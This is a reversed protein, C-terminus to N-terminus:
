LISVEWNRGEWRQDRRWFLTFEFVSDTAWDVTPYDAFWLNLGAEHLTDAQNTRVWGDISWVVTAEVALIIRLIRGQPMRRLQHRLNGIEHRSPVPNAVCRQFAPEVRDFCVGDRRSRVLSINSEVGQFWQLV